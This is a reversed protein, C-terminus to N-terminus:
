RACADGGAVCWARRLRDALGARGRGLRRAHPRDRDQVVGAAAASRVARAAGAGGGRRQRPQGRGAGQGPRHRAAAARGARARGRVRRAGRGGRQGRSQQRRRHERRGRHALARAAHAAAAGRLGRRAGARRPGAGFPRAGEPSLLQMAGFGAVTFRNDPEAGLVLAEEAGGGRLLESAALIANLASTCATSVTFVPGRWALAGAVIEAFDLLDGGLRRDDKEHEMHGIDLSSSAVFLPADRSVAGGARDAQAVVARVRRRVREDWGGDTPSLKYVPWRAHASVAVPVPRVGGARLTALAADLDDGLVCALGVGGLYVARM